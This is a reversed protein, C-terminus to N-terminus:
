FVHEVGVTFINDTKLTIPTGANLYHGKYQVFHGYVQTSALLMHDAGITLQKMKIHSFQSRYHHDTPTTDTDKKTKQKTANSFYYGLGSTDTAYEAKFNIRNYCFMLNYFHSNGQMNQENEELSKTHQFLTGLTWAKWQVQAVGRYADVNSIGKNYSASFYYHQKRFNKDGLSSTLAYQTQAKDQNKQSSQNDTMLYTSSVEILDAFRPSFYWISDATRSQGAVLNNIDANSGNFVDVNGESNKFVTNNRGVLITGLTDEIGLYTNHAKLPSKENEVSPNSLHVSLKYIIRSQESIDYGGKLGITAYSEITSGQKHSKTAYPTTANALSFDMSGYLQPDQAVAHSCFLTVLFYLLTNLPTLKRIIITM